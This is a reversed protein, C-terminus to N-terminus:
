HAPPRQWVFHHPLSTVEVKETFDKYEPFGAPKTFWPFNRRVAVYRLRPPGHALMMEATTAFGALQRDYRGFMNSYLKGDSYLGVLPDAIFHVEDPHARAFATAREEPNNRWDRLQNVSTRLAAYRDASRLEDGIGFALIAAMTLLAAARVLPRTTSTTQVLGLLAAGTMFYTSIAFVNHEGGIKADAVTATPVMLLAVWALGTWPQLRLWERVSLGRRVNMAAVALVLVGAVSSTAALRGLATLLDGLTSGGRLTHKWQVGGPVQFMSFLLGDFGFWLVFLLSVILGTGAVFLSLRFASRWGHLLWVYLPLAVVIPAATQKSWVALVAFLAVFGMQRNTPAGHRSLLCACACGGFALAPADALVSWTAWTLAKDYSCLLGLCVVAASAVLHSRQEPAAFALWAFPVLVFLFSQLIAIWIAGSPSSALAAPTYALAFMPGYMFDILPGETAGPFINYGMALAVANAVRSANMELIPGRALAEVLHVLVVVAGMPALAALVRDLRSESKWRWATWLGPLIVALM